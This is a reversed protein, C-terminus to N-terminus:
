GAAFPARSSYTALFDALLQSQRIPRLGELHALGSLNPGRDTVAFICGDRSCLGSGLGLTLKLEAKPYRIVDLPEDRWDLREVRAFSPM